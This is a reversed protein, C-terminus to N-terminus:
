PVQCFILHLPAEGYNPNYHRTNFHRMNSLSVHGRCKILCPTGKERLAGKLLLAWIRKCPKLAPENSSSPGKGGLTSCTNSWLQWVHPPTNFHEVDSLSVHGSCKYSM